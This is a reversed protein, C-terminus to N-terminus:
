VSAVTLNYEMAKNKDVIIKYETNSNEFGGNIDYTGEVDALIKSIDNSIEKLKELKLGKVEILIGEGVLSGMDMNSTSIELEVNM